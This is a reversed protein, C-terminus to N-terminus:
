KFKFNKSLKRLNNKRKLGSLSDKFITRANPAGEKKSNVM